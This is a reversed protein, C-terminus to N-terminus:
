FGANAHQTTSLNAFSASIDTSNTGAETLFLSANSPVDSCGFVSVNQGNAWDNTGTSAATSGGDVSIKSSAGSFLGSLAHFTSNSATATPVSTGAFIYDTGSSAGGGMRVNGASLGYACQRAGTNISKVVATTSFPQATTSPSITPGTNGGTVGELCPKSSLGTCNAIFKPRNTFTFDCTTSCPTSGSQNYWKDAYCQVSTCDAGGPLTTLVLMGTTAHSVMDACNGGSTADCLKIVNNGRTAISFAYLGYWITWGSVADGTGSFSGGGASAPMGPGPMMGGQAGAPGILSACFAVALAIRKMM